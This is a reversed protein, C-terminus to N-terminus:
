IKDSMKAAAGPRQTRMVAGAASIATVTKSLACTSPSCSEMLAPSYRSRLLVYEVTRCM